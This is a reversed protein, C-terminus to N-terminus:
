QVFLGYILGVSILGLILMWAYIKAFNLTWGMLIIRKPVLIRGDKANFYFVGWKYNEPDQIMRDNELQDFNTEMQSYKSSLRHILTM